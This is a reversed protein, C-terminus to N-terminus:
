KRIRPIDGIHAKKPYFLCTEFNKSLDQPDPEFKFTYKKHKKCSSKYVTCFTHRDKKQDFLRISEWPIPISKYITVLKKFGVGKKTSFKVGILPMAQGNYQKQLILNYEERGKQFKEAECYDKMSNDSSFIILDKGLNFSCIMITKYCSSNIEDTNLHIYDVKEM